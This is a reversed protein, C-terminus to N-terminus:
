APAPQLKTVAPMTKPAPRDRRISPSEMRCPRGSVGHGIVAVCGLESGDGVRQGLQPLLLPGHERHQRLQDLRGPCLGLHQGVDEGGGPLLWPGDSAACCSAARVTATWCFLSATRPMPSCSAARGASIPTSSARARGSADGRASGHQGVAGSRGASRRGRLGHALMQQLLRERRIHRRHRFVVGLAQARGRWGGRRGGAVSIFGAAAPQSRRAFQVGHDGALDSRSSSLARSASPLGTERSSSASLASPAKTAAPSTSRSRPTPM